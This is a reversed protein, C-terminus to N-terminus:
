CLRPAVRAGWGGHGSFVVAQQRELEGRVATSERGSTFLGRQRGHAHAHPSGQLGLLGCQVEGELPM